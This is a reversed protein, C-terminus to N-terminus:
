RNPWVDMQIRTKLKNKQYYLLNIVRIFLVLYFYIFLCTIEVIFILHVIEQNYAPIKYWQVFVGGETLKKKM